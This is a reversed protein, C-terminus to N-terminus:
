AAIADGSRLDALSVEGSVAHPLVLSRYAEIRGSNQQLTTAADWLPQMEADLRELIRRPPIAVMMDDLHHRKIHGMTTAKDAAIARFEPMAEAIRAFVFWAPFEEPVVKFIHQNVIAEPGPWRYVGLSGSWSFLIDGARAVHDPPVEINNWVTSASAGGNLERIRIVMRGTGSAGKTYAGGNVFRGLTSLPRKEWQDAGDIERLKALFYADALSNVRESVDVADDLAALYRGIARQLAVPPVAVAVAALASHSIFPQGTGQRLASMDVTKLLYYLFRPDNDGRARIASANNNIWAGQDSYRVAGCSSGIRAFAILPGAYLEEATFGMLTNSGFVPVDGGEGYDTKALYRGPLIEAIDGIRCVQRDSTM